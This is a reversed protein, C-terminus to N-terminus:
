MLGKIGLMTKASPVHVSLPTMEVLSLMSFARDLFMNTNEIWENSPAHGHSGGSYMWERDAM